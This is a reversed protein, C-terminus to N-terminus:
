DTANEYRLALALIIFFWFFSLSDDFMVSISVAFLISLLSLAMSNFNSRLKTRLNKFANIFIYLFSLIGLLGGWLWIQLFTNHPGSNIYEGVNDRLSFSLHTNPGIGLPNLLIYKLYFPWIQFRTERESYVLIHNDSKDEVFKAVIDDASKDKVTVYSSADSGSPYLSRLVVRQKGTQPTFIFGMLLILFVLFGSYFLKKWNFNHLSFVLWVFVASLALSVLGGRSAVWFLLAVLTISIIIYGLKIWVNRFTFLSHTIFFLTPILLIKSIINPNMIFGLFTGNNELNFYVAGEPFLVFITYITPLLLAYLYKKASIQDDKTYFLVLVFIVLSIVFNGFELIVNLNIPVNKFFVAVFWGIFVSALLCLLAIWIKKDISSFFQKFKKNILLDLFTLLIILVLIIEFPKPIFTNYFNGLRYILSLLALFLLGKNIKELSLSKIKEIVKSINKDM